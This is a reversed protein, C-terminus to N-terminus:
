ALCVSAATKLRDTKMDPTVEVLMFYLQWPLKEWIERSKKAKGTENSLLGCVSTCQSRETQEKEWLKQRM